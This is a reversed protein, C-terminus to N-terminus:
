PGPPADLIDEISCASPLCRLTDDIIRESLPRSSLALCAAEGYKACIQGFLLRERGKRKLMLGKLSALKMPAKRVYIDRILVALVIEEKNSVPIEDNTATGPLTSSATENTDAVHSASAFAGYLCSWSCVPLQRWDGALSALVPNTVMDDSDGNPRTAGLPVELPVEDGGGDMTPDMAPDPPAPARTAVRAIPVVELADLFARGFASVNGRHSDVAHLGRVLRLVARAEARRYQERREAASRNPRQPGTRRTRHLEM